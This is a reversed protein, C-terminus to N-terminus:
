SDSEHHPEEGNGGKKSGPPATRLNYWNDIIGTCILFVGTFILTIFFMLWFLVRPFRGVSARNMHFAVIAMGQMGYLGAVTLCVNLAIPYLPKFELLVLGFSALFVWIMHFPLSFMNLPPVPEPDLKMRRLVWGTVLFSLWALIISSITFVAFGVTFIAKMVTLANDAVNRADEPAMLSTYIGLMEKRINELMEPSVGQMALPFGLMCALIIGPLSAAFLRFAFTKRFWGREGIIVGTAAAKFFIMPTVSHGTLFPAASGLGGLLSFVIGALWGYKRTCVAALVIFPLEVPGFTLEVILYRSPDLDGLIFSFALGAVIGTGLVVIWTKLGSTLAM